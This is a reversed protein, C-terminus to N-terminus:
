TYFHVLEVAVFAPIFTYGGPRLEGVLLEKTLTQSHRHGLAQPRRPRSGPPKFAQSALQFGPVSWRQGSLLSGATASSCVRPHCAPPPQRRSAAQRESGRFWHSEVAAPAGLVSPPHTTVANEEIYFMLHMQLCIAQLITSLLTSNTPKLSDILWYM